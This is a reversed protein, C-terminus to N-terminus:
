RTPDKLADEGRLELGASSLIWVEFKDVAKNRAEDLIEKTYPVSTGAPDRMVELRLLVLGPRSQFLHSGAPLEFTQPDGENPFVRIQVETKYGNVIVPPYGKSCGTLCAASGVLLALFLLIAKLSTPGVYRGSSLSGARPLRPNCDHREPRTRQYAHKPRM